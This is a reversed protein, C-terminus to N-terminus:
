AYTSFILPILTSSTPHSPTGQGLAVRNVAGRRGVSRRGGRDGGGRVVVVEMEAEWVRCFRVDFCYCDYNRIPYYKNFYNELRTAETRIRSTQNCVRLMARGERQFRCMAFALGAEEPLDAPPPPPLLLCCFCELGADEAGGALSPPLPPSAGAPARGAFFSFSGGAGCSSKETPGRAGRRLTKAM